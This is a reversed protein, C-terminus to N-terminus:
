TTQASFLNQRIVIILIPFIFGLLAAFIVISVKNLGAKSSKIDHILKTKYTENKTQLKLVRDLRLKKRKLQVEDYLNLSNSIYITKSADPINELSFYVEKYFDAALDVSNTKAIIELRSNIDEIEETINRIVRNNISEHSANIYDLTDTIVQENVEISNSINQVKLLANELIIFTLNQYSKKIKLSVKLDSLLAGLPQIFEIEDQKTTILRGDNSIEIGDETGIKKGIEFIASTQYSTPLQIAFITGAITFVSTTLILISKFKILLNVFGKFSIEDQFYQPNNNEM